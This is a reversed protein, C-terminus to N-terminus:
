EPRRLQRRTDVHSDVGKEDDVAPPNKPHGGKDKNGTKKDAVNHNGALAHPFRVKAGHNTGPKKAATAGLIQVRSLRLFEHSLIISVKIIAPQMIIPM